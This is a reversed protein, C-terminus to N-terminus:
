IDRKAENLNIRSSLTQGPWRLPQFFVTFLVFSRIAQQGLLDTWSEIFKEPFRFFPFFILIKLKVLIFPFLMFVAYFCSPLSPDNPFFPPFFKERQMGHFMSAFEM